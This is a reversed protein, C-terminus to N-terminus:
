FSAYVNFDFEATDVVGSNDAYYSRAFGQGNDLHQHNVFAPNIDLNWGKIKALYNAGIEHQFQNKEGPGNYTMKGRNLGTTRIDTQPWYYLSFKDTFNYAVSGGWNFRYLTEGIADASSNMYARTSLWPMFTVKRVNFSTFFDTRLTGHGGRVKQALEGMPIYYSYWATVPDSNGIKGYTQKVTVQPERGMYKNSFGDDVSTTNNAISFNYGAEVITNSNVKYNLGLYNDAGVLAKSSHLQQDKVDTYAQAFANIGWKKTATTSEASPLVATSTQTQLTSSVDSDSLTTTSSQALALSGTAMVALLIGLKM